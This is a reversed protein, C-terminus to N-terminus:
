QTVRHVAALKAYVIYRQTAFFRPHCAQLALEEYGRTKLRALDTAPVIVHGTVRYVFTAYPTALHVLDGPELRDIHSFPAQYTTRHGAIYVLQGEGPLHTRQDAGPGKKLSASDTGEVVVTSLGMRPIRLRGVPDGQKTSLRFRRAVTALPVQKKAAVVLTPTIEHVREAYDSRLGSQARNAYLATVPDQWLMVTAVWVLGLVAAVILISGLWRVSRRLWRSSSARPHEEASIAM